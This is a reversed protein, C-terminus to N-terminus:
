GAISRPRPTNDIEDRINEYILPTVSPILSGGKLAEDDKRINILIHTLLDDVAELRRVILRDNRLVAPSQRLLSIAIERCDSIRGVLGGPTSQFAKEYRELRAATAVLEDMYKRRDRRLRSFEKKAEAQIKRIYIISVASTLVLALLTVYLVSKFVADDM